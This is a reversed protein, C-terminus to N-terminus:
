PSNFCFFGEDDETGRRALGGKKGTESGLFGRKSRKTCGKSNTKTIFIICLFLCDHFDVIL